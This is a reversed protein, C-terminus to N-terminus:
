LDVAAVYHGVAAAAACTLPLDLRDKLLMAKGLVESSVYRMREPDESAIVVFLSSAAARAAIPLALRSLSPRNPALQEEPRATVVTGSRHDPLQVSQTRSACIASRAPMSNM